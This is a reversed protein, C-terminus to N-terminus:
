RSILFVVLVAILGVAIMGFKLWGLFRLYSDTHATLDGNTESTGAM